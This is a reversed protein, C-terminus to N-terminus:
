PHLYTDLWSLTAARILQTGWTPAAGFDGAGHETAPIAVYRTPVGLRRVQEAFDRVPGPLVLHDRTGQMVLTPPSSATAHTLPDAFAYREPFESPTGGAYREGLQRGFVTRRDMLDVAPYGGIVARVGALEQPSGCSPVLQDDAALYGALYALSGGASEGFLAVREPDLGYAGAQATVWTLACGVDAVALDWTPRGPRALRYQIDLVAYGRDAFHRHYPRPGKDGGDFGGGHVYVVVPHSSGSGAPLYLDARLTEGGVRAVTVTEDPIGADSRLPIAPAFLRLGGGERAVTAVLLGATAASVLTAIAASLVIVRRPLSASARAARVALALAALALLVVWVGLEDRVVGLGIVAFQFWPVDLVRGWWHSPLLALLQALLVVFSLAAAVITSLRRTSRRSLVDAPPM